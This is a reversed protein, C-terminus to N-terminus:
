TTSNSRASNRNTRNAVASNRTGSTVASTEIVSGTDTMMNSNYMGTTDTLIVDKNTDLDSKSNCAIIFSAVFVYKFIKKMVTKKIVRYLSLVTGSHEFM